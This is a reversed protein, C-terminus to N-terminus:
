VEESVPHAREVMATAWRTGDTADMEACFAWVSAPLKERPIRHEPRVGPTEHQMHVRETVFVANRPDYVHAHLRRRRLERKPLPHHAHFDPDLPDRARTGTIICRGGSAAYAARKFDEPSLPGEKPRAKRKRALHARRAPSAAARELERKAEAAKEAAARLSRESAERGREVFARRREVSRRSRGLQGRKAAFRRAKEGDRKM